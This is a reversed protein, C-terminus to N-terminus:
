FKIILKRGDKLGITLSTESPNQLQATFIKGNGSEMRIPGATVEIGTPSLGAASSTSVAGTGLLSIIAIKSLM